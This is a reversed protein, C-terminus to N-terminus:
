GTRCEECQGEISNPVDFYYIVPSAKLDAPSMSLGQIDKLSVQYMKVVLGNLVHICPNTAKPMFGVPIIKNGLPFNVAKMNVGPGSFQRQGIGSITIENNTLENINFAPFYDVTNIFTFGSTVGFFGGSRANNPIFIDFYPHTFPFNVGTSGTIPNVPYGCTCGTQDEEGIILSPFVQIATGGSVGIYEKPVFEVEKWAYQFAKAKEPADFVEVTSSDLATAGVILAYFEEDKDNICCVNYKFINWKEKLNRLDYYEQAAASIGNKIDIFLQAINKKVTITKPNEPSEELGPDFNPNQEIKSDIPNLEEIDFMSQWQTYSRRSSTNSQLTNGQESYLSYSPENFYSNFYKYDLYGWKQDDYFRKPSISSSFTGGVIPFVDFAINKFPDLLDPKTPTSTWFGVDLGPDEFLYKGTKSIPKNIAYEINRATHGKSHDLFTFYPNEFDPDIREYYSLFAGNNEMEMFSIAPNFNVSDIKIVNPIKFVAYKADINGHKFVAVTEDKILSDYTRFNVGNFDKWFFFKPRGDIDVASETLYNITNLLNSQDLKRGSPCVPNKPKLWAYNSTPELIHKEDPFFTNVINFMWDPTIPSQEGPNDFGGSAGVSILKMEEEFFIPRRDNLFYSVHIFKLAILNPQTRDATDTVRNAQYVIYQNSKDEDNGLLISSGDIDLKMYISDKGSPNFDALFDGHDRILLTGSPIINEISEELILQEFFGRSNEADVIRLIVNTRYHKINIYSISVNSYAAM